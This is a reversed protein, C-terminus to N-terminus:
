AGIPPKPSLPASITTSRAPSGVHRRRRRHRDGL